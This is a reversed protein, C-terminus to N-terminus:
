KINSYFELVKSRFAMEYKATIVLNQARDYNNKAIIYEVTSNTTGNNFRAEAIKFSKEFSKFQIEALDYRERAGEALFGAQEIQQQVTNKALDTNVKARDIAIEAKKIQSRVRYGDLIPISLSVLGSYNFNNSLQKPYKVKENNITYASSYNSGLNLSFGLQPYKLSKASALNLEASKIQFENSKVMPHQLLTSSFDYKTNITNLGDSNQIDFSEHYPINMLQLLSLKASKLDQENALLNLQDQALQGEMDSLQSPIIAGQADLTKLRNIQAMTTQEQMEARVLLEKNNLIQLYAITVQLQLNAEENKLAWRNAEEAYQSSKLANNLQNAQWIPLYAQGNFGGRTIQENIFGNTSPDISRGFNLGHGIGANASPLKNQKATIVDVSSSKYALDALKTLNSNKLALDICEQLGYKKQAFCVVNFLLIIYILHSKM